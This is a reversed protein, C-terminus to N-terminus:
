GVAIGRYGANGRGRCIVAVDTVRLEPSKRSLGIPNKAREGDKLYVWISEIQRKSDGDLIDKKFAHGGPWAEPMITNPHFRAPRLLFHYFWDKKLRQTSHIIDMAGPGSAEQGNFNHCAICSFGTTGVLQHGADKYRQVNEIKDFAVDELTDVEEFLDVLHGVSSEGFKPMRTALYERQEQGNLMVERIWSKQLKAGVHTLPPPIRGENGLETKTGIFYPNREPSVGGLGEREHCAICNFTVLSKEVTQQHTLQKPTEAQLATCIRQTQNVKLAYHPWSGANGSLCGHTLDLDKFPKYANVVDADRPVDDHCQVCGLRTFHTKGRAALDEDVKYPQYPEIPTRSISLATHPIAQREMGPGAMEFRLRPEKGAHIYTLQIRNWGAPLRQTAQINKVGRRPSAPLNAVEKDNLSLEAGNCELFFTYEGAKEINLYGDYIIASNGPLQTLSALDFDKVLGAQEPTVNEDLGEYVRGRLRTYRLHGPVETRRLLYLALQDPERPNLKMDPMRGSPRVKHPARLFESLSRTNYRQELDGLPVSDDAMVAEGSEDRPSHCAVCGVSHFLREGEEAAVSDIPQLDFAPSKGRLSLLYHTIAKATETREADDLHGMVNPMTTGPKTAHPHQIFKELYYPNVRSGVSLLRPAVKPSQLLASDSEHCAVCNLEELLVLGQLKEDLQSAEVSPISVAIREEAAQALQTALIVTVLTIAWRAFAYRPRPDRM